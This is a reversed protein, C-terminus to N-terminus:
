RSVLVQSGLVGLKHGGATGLDELLLGSVETSRPLGAAVSLSMQLLSAEFSTGFCVDRLPASRTPVRVAPSEFWRGPNRNSFGDWESSESWNARKNRCSGGIRMEPRRPV